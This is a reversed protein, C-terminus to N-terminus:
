QGQKSGNEPLPELSQQVAEPLVKWLGFDKLAQKQMGLLKNREAPDSPLIPRHADNHESSSDEPDGGTFEESEPM